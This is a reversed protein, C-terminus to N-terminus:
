PLVPYGGAARVAAVHRDHRAFRPLVAEPGGGAQRRRFLAELWRADGPALGLEARARGESAGGFRLAAYNQGLTEPRAGSTPKM